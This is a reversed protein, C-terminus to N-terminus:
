KEGNKDAGKEKKLTLECQCFPHYPPLADIDIKNLDITQENPKDKESHAKSYLYRYGAMKACLSFVYWYYKKPVYSAIYHLRYEFTVYLREKGSKLGSEKIDEYLKKVDIEIMKYFIQLNTANIDLTIDQKLVLEAYLKANKFEDELLANLSEKFSDVYDESDNSYLCNCLEKFTKCVKQFKKKSKKSIELSEKLKASYLGHQNEPMNNSAIAHNETKSAKSKTIRNSNAKSNNNNETTISASLEASAKNVRIQEDAETKAKFVVTANTINNLYYDSMDKAKQMGMHRRTEELSQVNAQYKLMEHNETKIKTDQSIEKFVFYCEDSPNELPNYGGEFLLEYIIQYTIANAITKQYFKVSDHIQAEIAEPNTNNNDRGMQTESTNLGTFARKEFYSAYGLVDLAVSEAGVAKIEVKENTILMADEQMSAIDAKFNDIDTQTGHFGPQPLGVKAHYLPFCFRHILTLIDGEIERLCKVDELVPCLRPTGYKSDPGRDVFVHVMDAKSIIQDKDYAKVIYHKINNFDDKEIIVTAPDLRMYGCVPKDKLYGTVQKIPLQDSRIKYFFANSYDILDDCMEQIFIDFPVENMYSLYKFRKKLYEVIEDEGDLYYGAKLMKEKYKNTSQAIYSDTKLAQRIVYFVNSPYELNNSRSFTYRIIGKVTSSLASYNKTKDALQKEAIVIETEAPPKQKHFLNFLNFSFAM